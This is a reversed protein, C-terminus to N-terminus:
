KENTESCQAVNEVLFLDTGKLFFPPTQMDNILFPIIIVFLLLIVDDAVIIYELKRVSNVFRSVVLLYYKSM